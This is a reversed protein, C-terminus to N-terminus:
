RFASKVASVLVNTLNRLQVNYHITTYGVFVAAAKSSRKNIHFLEEFSCCFYSCSVKVYELVLYIEEETEFEEILRVINPHHCNKM